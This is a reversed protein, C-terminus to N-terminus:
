ESPPDGEGFETLVMGVRRLQTPAPSISIPCLYDYEKKGFITLLRSGQTEFFQPRWVDVLGEAEKQNLGYEVLLEVLRLEVEEDHHPLDLTSIETSRKSDTFKFENSSASIGDGSVDILFHVRKAYPPGPGPTNATFVSSRYTDPVAIKIKDGEISAKVPSPYETPGDYYLFRETEGRNSVWSTEVERLRKWWNYKPDSIAPLSMWSQKTPSVFLSQWRFGVDTVDFIHEKTHSPSLWPYGESLDELNKLELKPPVDAAAKREGRGPLHGGIAFDDPMPYGFWPRGAKIRVDIDVVLPQDVTFHLIPKDVFIEWIPTRDQKISKMDNGVQHVFTPIEDIISQALTLNEGANIWVGWEAVRMQYTTPNWNKCARAAASRVIQAPDNLLLQRIKERTEPSLNREPENEWNFTTRNNVAPSKGPGKGKNQNASLIQESIPWLNIKPNSQFFPTDFGAPFLPQHVVGIADVAASRILDSEHDLFTAYHPIDEEVRFLSSLLITNRLVHEHKTKKSIQIFLDHAGDPFQEAIIKLACNRREDTPLWRLSKGLLQLQQSTPVDDQCGIVTRTAYDPLPNAKLDLLVADIWRNITGREFQYMRYAVFVAALATIVLLSKLSFKRWNQM